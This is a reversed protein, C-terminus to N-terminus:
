EDRSGSDDVLDDAWQSSSWTFRRCQPCQYTTWVSPEGDSGVEVHGCHKCRTPWEPDEGEWPRILVVECQLCLWGTRGVPIDEGEQRFAFLDLHADRGCNPCGEATRPGGAEIGQMIMNIDFASPLGAQSGATSSPENPESGGQSEPWNFARCSPCQYDKWTVPEGDGGIETHGCEKCWEPWEPDSGDWPKRLALGCKECSWGNAGVIGGPGPPDDLSGPKLNFWSRYLRADRGCKPCGQAPQERAAKRAQMFADVDFGPPLTVTPGSSPAPFFSRPSPAVIPNATLNNWPKYIAMLTGGSGIALVLLVFVARKIAAEPLPEVYDAASATPPPTVERGCEPCRPETLGILSYGCKRCRYRRYYSLVTRLKRAAVFTPYLGAAILPIWIPFWVRHTQLTPGVTTYTRRSLMGIWRNGMLSEGASRDTEYFWWHSVRVQGSQVRAILTAGDSHDRGILLPRNTWTSIVWLWACCLAAVTLLVIFAKRLM